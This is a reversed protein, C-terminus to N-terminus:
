IVFGIRFNAIDEAGINKTEQNGVAFRKFVGTNYNNEMVYYLYDPLLLDTEVVKIGIHEPSYEKTPKGVENLNGKRVVWFDAEPYDSKLDCLDSLKM